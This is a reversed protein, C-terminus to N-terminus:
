PRWFPKNAEQEAEAYTIGIDRLLHPDLQALRARSRHRRWAAALAAGLSRLVPMRPRRFPEPRTVGPPWVDRREAPAPLFPLTLVRDSM